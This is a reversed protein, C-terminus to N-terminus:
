MAIICVCGLEKLTAVNDGIWAKPLGILRDYEACKVRNYWGEITGRVSPSIQSKCEEFKPMCVHLETNRVREAVAPVSNAAAIKQTLDRAAFNAKSETVDARCIPCRRVMEQKLRESCAQCVSHACPVLIVPDVLPEFCIPCGFMLSSAVRKTRCKEMLEPWKPKKIPPPVPVVPDHMLVFQFQIWDRQAIQNSRFPSIIALNFLTYTEGKRLRYNGVMVGRVTTNTLKLSHETEDFAITCIFPEARVNQIRVICRSNHGIRLPSYLPVRFASHYHSTLPVIQAKPIHPQM